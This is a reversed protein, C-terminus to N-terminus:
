PRLVATTNPVEGGLSHAVAAHLAIFFAQIDPARPDRV